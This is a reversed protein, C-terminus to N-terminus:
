HTAQRCVVGCNQLALGESCDIKTEMRQALIKRDTSFYKVWISHTFTTCKCTKLLNRIKGVLNYQVSMNLFKITQIDCSYLFFVRWLKRKAQNTEARGRSMKNILITGIMGCSVTCQATCQPASHVTTCSGCSLLSCISAETASLREVMLSREEGGQYNVQM